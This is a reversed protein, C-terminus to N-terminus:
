DFQIHVTEYNRVVITQLIQPHMLYAHIHTYRILTRVMTRERAQSLECLNDLRSIEDGDGDGDGDDDDAYVAIRM